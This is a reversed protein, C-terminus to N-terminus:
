FGKVQNDSKEVKKPVPKVGAGVYSLASLVARDVPSEVTGEAIKNMEGVTANTFLETVATTPTVPKGGFFQGDIISLVYVANAKLRNDVLKWFDDRSSSVGFKNSAMDIVRGNVKKKKYYARAIFNVFPSMGGSFDLTFMTGNSVRFYFKMWDEATPDLELGEEDEGDRKMGMATALAALTISRQLSKGYLQYLVIARAKFTGKYNARTTLVPQGVAVAIRSYYWRSSILIQNAGAFLADRKQNTSFGRGGMMMAANIFLAAQDPTASGGNADILNDLMEARALNSFVRNFREVKLLLKAPLAVLGKGFKVEALKNLLEPDLMDENNKFGEEDPALYKMEIKRDKIKVSDYIAYPREVIKKYAAFENEENLATVARWFVRALARQGKLTPSWDLLSNMTFIGNARLIAGADGLLAYQNRFYLAQKIRHKLWDWGQLNEVRWQARLKQFKLKAKAEEFQARELRAHTIPDPKPPDVFDGERIRREYEARRKESAKVLADVRKVDYGAVEIELKSLVQRMIKVTERMGDVRANQTSATEKPSFDKSDIRRQLDKMTSELQAIAAKHKREELPARPAFDKKLFDVAVAMDAKLKLLEVPFLERPYVTGDPQPPFKGNKIFYEMRDISKQTSQKLREISREEATKKPYLAERAKLRNARLEALRKQRAEIEKSYPLKIKAKQKELIGKKLMDEEERIMRDLSSIAAKVRQEETLTRKDIGFIANYKDKLENRKEILALIEPTYETKNRVRSIRKKKKIAEDLEEIENNLRTEIADLSGRMQDRKRTHKIGSKRLADGLNRTLNRIKLTPQDRQLGTKKPPRGAQADKIQAQIRETDRLERVAKALEEQSPYKVKGYGTFEVVVEDRTIGPFKDQLEETVRDIVDEPKVGLALYGRVMNYVARNNLPQGPELMRVIEAPSRTKGTKQAANYIQQAYPAAGPFEKVLADTFEELTTAGNAIYESGVVAFADLEQPSLSETQYLISPSEGKIQAILADLMAIPAALDSHPIQDRLQDQAREPLTSLAENSLHSEILKKNTEWQQSLENNTRSLNNVGDLDFDMKYLDESKIGAKEAAKFFEIVKDALNHYLAYRQMGFAIAMNRGAAQLPTFSQLRSYIAAYTADLLKNYKKAKRYEEQYEDSNVAKRTDYSDEIKRNRLSVHFAAISGAQGDLEEELRSNLANGYRLAHSRIKNEMVMVESSGARHALDGIHEYVSTRIGTSYKSIPKLNKPLSTQITAYIEPYRRQMMQSHHLVRSELSGDRIGSGISPGLDPHDELPNRSDSTKITASFAGDAVSVTDGRLARTYEGQSLDTHGAPDGNDKFWTARYPKEGPITNKSLFVKVPSGGGVSITVEPQKSKDVKRGMQALTRFRDLVARAMQVRERSVERKARPKPAAAKSKELDAIIRELLAKEEYLVRNEELEAELKAVLDTNKQIEANLDEVLKKEKENLPRKEDLGANRAIYADAMMKSLTFSRSAVLKMAQLALGALSGQRRVVDLLEAFAATAKDAADAAAIRDVATATDPLKEADIRANEIARERVLGEHALLAAEYKDMQRPNDILDKVLAAGVLPPKPAARRQDPDLKEFAANNAVRLLAEDWAEQDTVKIKLGSKPMGYERRIADNIVKRLGFDTPNATPRRKPIPKKAAPKAPEKRRVEVAVPTAQQGAARLREGRTVLKQMVARVEPTIEINIDSATISKYVDMLWNALKQIARDVAEVGTTVGELIFREFGRAWKEEADKDWRSTGGTAWETVTAIDEDTIGARNEQPIDKNLLFYRALHGGLEHVATSADASEFYSVTAKSLDRAAQFSGKIDQYLISPSGADAWEDPLIRPGPSIPDASKIQAPDFAVYEVASEVGPTRQVDNRLFFVGVVPKGNRGMNTQSYAAGEAYRRDEAFYSGAPHNSELTNKGRRETDFVVFPFAERRKGKTGHFVPGVGYGAERLAKERMASLEEWKGPNAERWAAIQEATAEDSDRYLDETLEIFRATDAARAGRQFLRMQGNPEVIPATKGPEVAQIGLLDLILKEAESVRDEEGQGQRQAAGEPAKSATAPQAPQGKVPAPRSTEQVQNENTQQPQIRSFMRKDLVATSEGPETGEVDNPYRIAGIGSEVLLERVQSLKERNRYTDPNTYFEGITEDVTAFDPNGSMRAAKEIAEMAANKHDDSIDWMGVMTIAEDQNILGQHVLEALLADPQEWPMDTTVSETQLQGGDSRDQLSLESVVGNKKGTKGSAVYDAQDRNGTHFGIAGKDFQVSDASLKAPGAHYVKSPPEPVLDEVKRLSFKKTNYSYDAAVGRHRKLKGGQVTFVSEAFYTQGEEFRSPDEEFMDRITQNDSFNRDEPLSNLDGTYPPLTEGWAKQLDPESFRVGRNSGEEFRFGFRRYWDKLQDATMPAAEGKPVVQDPRVDLDLTIALSDAESTLKQLAKTAAGKRREAQPTIIADLTARNPDDEDPVLTMEVGAEEGTEKTSFGIKDGFVDGQLKTNAGIAKRLKTFASDQAKGSAAPAAPAEQVGTDSLASQEANQAPEDVVLDVGWEKALDQPSAELLAAKEEPDEILDAQVAREQELQAVTVPGAEPFTRGAAEPAPVSEQAAAKYLEDAREHLEDDTQQDTPKFSFKDAAEVAGFPASVLATTKLTDMLSKKFDEQTMKPNLKSEVLLGNLAAISVEEASEGAVNVGFAMSARALSGALSKRAAETGLRSTFDEVGGFGLGSSLSTIFFESAGGIAALALSESESKGAKRASEYTDISQGAAGYAAVPAVNAAGQAFKLAAKGVPGAAAIRSAPVLANGLGGTAAGILASEAVSFAGAGVVAADVGGLIRTKESNIYDSLQNISQQRNALERQGAKLTTPDIPDGPPLEGPETFQRGALSAARDLYSAAVGGGFQQKWDTNLKDTVAKYDEDVKGTWKIESALEPHNDRVNNVIREQFVSLRQPVEEALTNKVSTPLNSDVIARQLKDIGGSLVEDKVHIAGFADRSVAEKQLGLRHKVLDDVEEPELNFDGALQDRYRIYNARSKEVGSANLLEGEPGRLTQDGFYGSNLASDQLAKWAPEMQKSVEKDFLSSTKMLKEQEAATQEQLSKVAAERETPDKILGYGDASSLQFERSLSNLKGQLFRQAVPAADQMAEKTDLISNTLTRQQQAWEDGPKEVDYNNWYTDSIVRKRAIDASQYEPHALIDKFPPLAM